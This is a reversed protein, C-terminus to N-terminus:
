LGLEKRFVPGYNWTLEEGETIDRVTYFKGGVRVVVNFNKTLHNAFRLNNSPLAGVNNKRDQLVYRHESTPRDALVENLPATRAGYSGLYTGAKLFKKAFLGQEEYERQKFKKISRCLPSREKQAKYFLRRRKKEKEEWAPKCVESLKVETLEELIEKTKADYEFHM